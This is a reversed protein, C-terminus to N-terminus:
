MASPYMDAWSMRIPRGSYSWGHLAPPGAGDAAAEAVAHVATETRAAMEARDLSRSNMLVFVTSAGQRLGRRLDEHTWATVVPLGAVTQTGTPDDDFVVVKRGSHQVAAAVVEVEAHREPPLKALVHNELVPGPTM